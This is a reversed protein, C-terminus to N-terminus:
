MPLTQYRQYWIYSLRGYQTMSAESYFDLILKFPSTGHRIHSGHCLGKCLGQCFRHYLSHCLKHWMGKVSDTTCNRVSNMICDKVSGLDGRCHSFCPDQTLHQLDTCDQGPLRTGETKDQCDQGPLRTRATKDQCDQGSSSSSSTLVVSFDCTQTATLHSSFM